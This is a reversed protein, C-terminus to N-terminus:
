EDIATIYVTHRAAQADIVNLQCKIQSNKKRVIGLRNSDANTLMTFANYSGGMYTGPYIGIPNKEVCYYVPVREPM